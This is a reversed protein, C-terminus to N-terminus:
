RGPPRYAVTIKIAKDVEEPTMLVTTKVQVLGSANIALAVATTTANDPLEAIGIVDAEGFAYYFVELRGGLKRLLEELNARRQTGGEKLLGKTGEPGYSGQFLYKPM